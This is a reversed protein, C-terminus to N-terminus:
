LAEIQAEVVDKARKVARAKALPDMFDWYASEAPVGAAQSGDEGVPNFPVDIVFQVGGGAQPMFIALDVRAHAGGTKENTVMALYPGNARGRFGTNWGVKGTIKPDYYHVQEGLRPLPLDTM